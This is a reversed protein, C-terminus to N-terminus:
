DQQSRIPPHDFSITDNGVLAGGELVKLTVSVYYNIHYFLTAITNCDRVQATVQQWNVDALTDKLNVSTWNGGFLVQRFHKAIETSVEL